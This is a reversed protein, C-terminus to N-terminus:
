KEDLWIDQGSDEWIYKCFQELMNAFEYVCCSWIVLDDHPNIQDTVPLYHLDPAVQSTFRTAINKGTDRDQKIIGMAAHTGTAGSFKVTLYDPHFILPIYREIEDAYYAYRASLTSGENADDPLADFKKSVDRFTKVLTEAQPMLVNKLANIFMIKQSLDNVDESTLGLHVYGETQPTLIDSFKERLATIMGIVDHRTKDEIQGVRLTFEVPMEDAFKMIKQIDEDQLAVTGAPLVEHILFRLWLSEVIIRARVYAAESVYPALKDFLKDRYRGDEPTVNM